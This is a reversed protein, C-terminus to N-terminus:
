TILFAFYEVRWGERVLDDAAVVKATFGEQAILQKLYGLDGSTGFSVLMRGGGALHARAGRFFRTMAQYGEDAM